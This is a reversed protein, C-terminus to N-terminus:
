ANTCRAAAPGGQKVVGGAQTWFCMIIEAHNTGTTLSSWRGHRGQRQKGQVKRKLNVREAASPEAGRLRQLQSPGKPTDQISALSTSVADTAMPHSNGGLFLSVNPLPTQSYCM